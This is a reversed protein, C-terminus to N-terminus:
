CFTGRYHKIAEFYKGDHLLSCETHFNCETLCEEIYLMKVANGSARAEQHDKAFKLFAKESIGWSNRAAWAEARKYAKQREAYNVTVRQQDTVMNLFDEPSMEDANETTKSDEKRVIYGRKEWSKATLGDVPSFGCMAIEGAKADNYGLEERVKQGKETYVYM